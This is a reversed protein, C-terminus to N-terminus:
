VTMGPLLAVHWERLCSARLLGVVTFWESIGWLHPNNGAVSMVSTVGQMQCGHSEAPCHCIVQAQPLPWSGIAELPFLFSECNVLLAM